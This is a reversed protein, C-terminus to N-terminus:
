GRIGFCDPPLFPYPFSKTMDLKDLCRTGEGLGESQVSWACARQGQL